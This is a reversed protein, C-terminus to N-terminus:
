MEWEIKRKTVCNVIFVFYFGGRNLFNQDKCLNPCGVENFNRLLTDGSGLDRPVRDIGRDLSGAATKMQM